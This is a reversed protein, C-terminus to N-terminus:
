HEFEDVINKKKRAAAKKTHETLQPGTLPPYVDKLEEGKGSDRANCWLDFIKLVCLEILQNYKRTPRQTQADLFGTERMLERAKDINNKDVRFSKDKKLGKERWLCILSEDEEFDWDKSTRVVGRVYQQSAEQNPGNHLDWCGLQFMHQQSILWKTDGAEVGKGQFATGVSAKYLFGSKLYKTYDLVMDQTVVVCEFDCAEIMQQWSFLGNAPGNPLTYATHVIGNSVQKMKKSVQAHVTDCECYTHGVPNRKLVIKKLQPIYFPSSPDLLDAMFCLFPNNAAQGACGDYHVILFETDDDLTDRINQHVFSIVEDVGKGCVLFILSILIYLLLLLLLLLLLWWWWWWWWSTGTEDTLYYKVQQGDKGYTCIIYPSVKLIRRYWAEGITLLPTRLGQGYDIM